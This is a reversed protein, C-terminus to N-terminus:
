SRSGDASVASAAQTTGHVSLVAPALAPVKGLLCSAGLLYMEACAILRIYSDRDALGGHTRPDMGAAVLDMDAVLGLIPCRSSGDINLGVVAQEAGARARAQVRVRVRVRVKVKVQVHPSSGCGML